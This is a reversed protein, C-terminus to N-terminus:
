AEADVIRRYLLGWLPPSPVCRLSSKAFPLSSKSRQSDQNGSTYRFRQYEGVTLIVLGFNLRARESGISCRMGGTRGQALGTVRTSIGAAVAVGSGITM